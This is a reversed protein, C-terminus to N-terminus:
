ETFLNHNLVDLEPKEENRIRILGVTEELTLTHLKGRICAKYKDINRVSINLDHAIRKSASYKRMALLIHM